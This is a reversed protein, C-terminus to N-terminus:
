NLRTIHKAAEPSDGALDALGAAVSDWDGSLTVWQMIQGATEASTLEKLMDLVAAEGVKGLKDVARLIEVSKEKAGIKDLFSNFLGRHNVKINVKQRAADLASCSLAAGVAEKILLLIEFDAAAADSGIIDVDCQTFERYRGKQTNEGRWVKAICYRRFPFSLQDRHMAAYRALPVTLDFRLAVDRGGSDKWRYVQKETEGADEGSAANKGLLVEALELCPTDIPAYGFLRFVGEIKEIVTKRRIEEQPLFDRFGKLIKPEIYM